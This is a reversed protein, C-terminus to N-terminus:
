RDNQELYEILEDYAQMVDKRFSPSARNLSRRRAIIRAFRKEAEKKIPPAAILGLQESMDELWKADVAHPSRRVTSRCGKFYQIRTSTGIKM